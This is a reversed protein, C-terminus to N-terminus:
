KKVGFTMEFDENSRMSFDMIIAQIEELSNYYSKTNPLDVYQGTNNNYYRGAYGFQGNSGKVYAFSIPYKDRGRQPSVNPYGPEQVRKGTNGQLEKLIQRSVAFQDTNTIGPALRGATVADIEITQSGGSSSVTAWFKGGLPQKQITLDVDGKAASIKNWNVRAQEGSRDGVLSGIQAIKDKVAKGEAGGTSKSYFLPPDEEVMARYAQNKTNVLDKSLGKYIKDVRSVLDNNKNKMRNIGAAHGMTGASTSKDVYMNALAEGKEGPYMKKIQQYAGDFDKPFNAEVEKIAAYDNLTVNINKDGIQGIVQNGEGLESMQERYKAYAPTQALGQDIKLKQSTLAEAKRNLNYGSNPNSPDYYLSIEQNVSSPDKDYQDKYTAIKAQIKEYPLNTHYKGTVDVWVSQAGTGQEINAILKLNAQDANELNEQYYTEIQPSTLQQDPDGGRVIDALGGEGAEKKAKAADAALKLNFHREKQDYDMKWKAQEFAQKREQFAAQYIPNAVIKTEVELQNFRNALGGFLDQKFIEKKGLTPNALMNARTREFGTTYTGIAKELQDIKDDVGVAGEGGVNKQEKLAQLQTNYFDVQNKFSQDLRDALNENSTHDAYYTSSIELQQAAQPNQSFYTQAAQMVKDKSIEVRKGEILTSASWEGTTPNQTVVTDPNTGKFFDQFGKLYDFYDRYQLAGLKTGAKPDNMWAQVHKDTYWDNVVSGKGEEWKKAKQAEYKQYNATSAAINQINPDSAMDSAYGMATSLIQNKSFDAGAMGTLKDKVSSLSQNVYQKDSERVVPIGGLAQVMNKVKEVNTDYQQQKAMGAQVYTQMTKDYSEPNVSPIFPAFQTPGRDLFSAM